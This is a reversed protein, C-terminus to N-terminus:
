FVEVRQDQSPMQCFFSLLVLWGCVFMLLLWLASRNTDHLRRVAVSLSPVALVPLALLPLGSWWTPADRNLILLFVTLGLIGFCVCGIFVAFVWFAIRNSRGGFDNWRSFGQAIAQFLDLTEVTGGFRNPLVSKKLIVPLCILAVIINAIVFVTAVGIVFWLFM